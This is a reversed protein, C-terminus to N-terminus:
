TTIVDEDLTYSFTLEEKKKKKKDLPGLNLVDADNTGDDVDGL